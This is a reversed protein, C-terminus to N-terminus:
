CGWRLRGFVVALDRSGLVSSGERDLVCMYAHVGEKQQM